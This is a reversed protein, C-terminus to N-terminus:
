PLLDAVKVRLRYIRRPRAGSHDIRFLFATADSDIVYHNQKVYDMMPELQSRSIFHLDDLSVHSTVYKGKPFVIAEEPMPLHYARLVGDYSGIGLHVPVNEPLPELSLIERRIGVTQTFLEINKMWIGMAPNSSHKEFYLDYRTDFANILSIGSAHECYEELHDMTIKLMHQRKLLKEVEADLRAVERRYGELIDSLDSHEYTYSVTDLSLNSGTLKRIYLVNLLDEASYEYYGSREDQVPRLMGKNRYVRITEPNVYSMKSLERIKM